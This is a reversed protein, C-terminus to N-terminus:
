TTRTISTPNTGDDLTLTAATTSGDLKKVTKTTGAIAFDTLVQQILFIAQAM